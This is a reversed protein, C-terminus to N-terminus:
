GQKVAATSPTWSRSCCAHKMKMAAQIVFLRSSIPMIDEVEV